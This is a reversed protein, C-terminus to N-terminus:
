NMLERNIKDIKSNKDVEKKSTSKGLWEVPKSKNMVKNIIRNVEDDM